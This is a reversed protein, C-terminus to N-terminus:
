KASMQMSIVKRDKKQKVAITKKTVKQGGSSAIATTRL